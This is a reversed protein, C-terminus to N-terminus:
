MTPIGTFSKPVGVKTTQARHCTVALHKYPDDFSVFLTAGFAVPQRTENRWWPVSSLCCCLASECPLFVCLMRQCVFNVRPHTALVCCSLTLQSVESSWKSFSTAWFLGSLHHHAGFCSMTVGWFQSFSITTFLICELCWCLLHFYQACVRAAKRLPCIAAECYACFASSCIFVSWNSFFFFLKVSIHCTQVLHIRCIFYVPKCQYLM